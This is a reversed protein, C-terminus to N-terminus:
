CFCEVGFTLQAGDSHRYQEIRNRDQGLRATNFELAPCHRHWAADSIGQIATREEHGLFPHSSLFRPYYFFLAAGVALSLVLRVTVSSLRVVNSLWREVLGGFSLVILCFPFALTRYHMMDGGVKIVYPMASIAVAWMFGRASLNICHDGAKGLMVLMIAASAVLGYYGYPEFCNHLYYLGQTISVKDKLYFPTPFFEAYYYIRFVLWGLGSVLSSAVLIWPVRRLILWSCVIAVFSPIVFENRILPLLGLLLQLARSRPNLAFLAMAAAALQVLPSESGSSFYCVVAYATSLYVLPVSVCPGSDGGQLRRNITVCAYGFICYSVIAVTATITWYDLQTSRFGILLLLWLPSSYGEVFEGQNFVLGRHLFWLNDVYRYYVFSDDLMWLYRIVSALGVALFLWEIPAPWCIAGRWRRFRSKDSVIRITRDQNVTGNDTLCRRNEIALVAAKSVQFM